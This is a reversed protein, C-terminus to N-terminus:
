FVVQGFLAVQLVMLAVEDSVITIDNNLNAEFVKSREEKSVFLKQGTTEDQLTDNNDTMHARLLTTIGRRLVITTVSFTEKESPVYIKANPGDIVHDFRDFSQVDYWDVKSEIAKCVLASFFEHPSAMTLVPPKPGPIVTV